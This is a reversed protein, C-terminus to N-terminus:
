MQISMTCRVVICCKRSYFTGNEIRYTRSVIDSMEIYKQYLKLKERVKKAERPMLAFVERTM